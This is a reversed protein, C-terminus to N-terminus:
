LLFDLQGSKELNYLDDCGGIHKGKIFIQPVSTRGKTIQTMKLREQPDEVSIEQYHIKKKDLLLKAKVCYPCNSTTYIIATIMFLLYGM